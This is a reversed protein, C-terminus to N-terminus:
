EDKEIQQINKVNTKGVGELGPYIYNKIGLM